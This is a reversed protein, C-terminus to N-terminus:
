DVWHPRLSALLREAIEKELRIWESLKEIKLQMQNIWELVWDDYFGPFPHSPIIKLVVKAMRKKKEANSEHVAEDLLKMYNVADCEIRAHLEVTERTVRLISRADPHRRFISQLHNLYVRLNARARKPDMHPWLADCIQDRTAYPHFILYTLLRKANRKDWDGSLEVDNVRVQYQDLLNVHLTPLAPNLDQKSYLFTHYSLASTYLHELLEERDAPLPLDRKQLFLLIQRATEEPNDVFTYHSANEIIRLQSNFYFAKTWGYGAVCSTNFIDYEGLLVLTHQRIKRIYPFSACTKKILDLMKRNAKPDGNRIMHHLHVYERSDPSKVTMKPLIFDAYATMSREMLLSLYNLHKELYGHLYMKPPSILVLKGQWEPYRVAYEDLIACGVGHGILHYRTINLRDILKKLDLCLHEWSLDRYAACSQGEPEYTLISYQENLIPILYEWCGSNLGLDHSLVLTEADKRRAEYYRYGM